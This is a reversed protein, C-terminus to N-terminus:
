GGGVPLTVPCTEQSYFSFATPCCMISNERRKGYVNGLDTGNEVHKPQKDEHLMEVDGVKFPASQNLNGVCHASRLEMM